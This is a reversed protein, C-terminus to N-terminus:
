ADNVFGYCKKGLKARVKLAKWVVLASFIRIAKRVIDVEM